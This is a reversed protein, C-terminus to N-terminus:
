SELADKLRDLARQKDPNIRHLTLFSTSAEAVRKAHELLREGLMATATGSSRARLAELYAQWAIWLSESPQRKLWPEIICVVADSDHQSYKSIIDIVTKREAETVYGDAWAIFVLPVLLLATITQDDIGHDILEDLTADNHVRMLESLRKRKGERLAKERLQESLKLDVQYFFEDELARLRSDLANTTM